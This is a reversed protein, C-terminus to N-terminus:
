AINEEAMLKILHQVSHDWTQNARLWQAAARGFKHAILPNHYCWHMLEAIEDIDPSLWQGAIAGLHPPIAELKGKQLVIAWQETHGDDMGSHQQTIVPLGMMAAERMPMGWGECRSPIVFCDVSSYLERMDMDQNLYTCRKDRHGIKALLDVFQNGGPRSKIILRVAEDGKPFAKAFAENVEAWGKRAGRDALCLFTYPRPERSTIVPFEAPDTGGPVVYIPKNVGGQAFADANHQCPVIVQEVDMANIYDAWKDPCKSGETMTILWHRGGSPAKDLLYPPLCSITFTPQQIGVQKKMWHPMSVHEPFLPKVPYGFKQLTKILRNSYRGYGEFDTYSYTIFHM